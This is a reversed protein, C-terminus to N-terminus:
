SALSKGESLLIRELEEQEKKSLKPKSLLRQKKEQQKEYKKCENYLDSIQDKTLYKLKDYEDTITIELREKGLTYFKQFGQDNWIQKDDEYAIGNLSDCIIKYINDFDKHTTCVFHNEIDMYKSIVELKKRIDQSPEFYAVVNISIPNFGFYYRECQRQYESKIYNEYMVTEKPTIARSYGNITTLQPRQKTKIDGVVKFTVKM